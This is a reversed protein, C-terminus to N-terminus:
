LAEILTKAPVAIKILSETDMELTEWLNHTPNVEEPVAPYFVGYEKQSKDPHWGWNKAEVLKGLIAAQEM